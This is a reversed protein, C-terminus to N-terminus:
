GGLDLGLDVVGASHTLAGVSIFDPAAAAYAAVTALTIGGTVEIEVRGACRGVACAVDEPSFNDVMARDAATRLIEDLQELTDCEVHVPRGPWTRRAADVAAAISMGTLHNDKVMVADSLNARHNAGGGARVAAKELARLGPTTKRTDLIRTRGGSAQDAIDVFRRTLSAVGSLHRLFNLATREGTLIPALPGAVVAVVDREAFSAGEAVLWDVEVEGDLQAYTEVVCARGAVVGPERAVIAGRGAADAPILAATLDGLPLLDEALARGVADVVSAHPPDLYSTVPDRPPVLLRRRHRPLRAPHSQRPEGRRTRAAAILAGAVVTLNALAAWDRGVHAPPLQARVRDVHQAAAVLSASSRLVGAGATMAQQLAARLKAPDGPAEPAPPDPPAICRGPVATGAGGDLVARMAGTPRPGDRGAVIADVVRAGWVMGELLSNSALRNAGHVGTCAVEGAAWLGSVATAGDLDTVVGGSLYHAAPAIPLWDVAPDLGVAALSAAISPFREEFRELGTADLWCHDVGQELARATIARAVQDRPLLEDVFRQGHIDRVVAGHGRLAESLLPRPMAPHHLATPHFQMFEVDAAPVGAALAVALGDGTSEPPNTTVAYLQGAGGTALLVHTARIELAGQVRVGRCRGSEIVLAELFCSERLVAATSRAPKSSPASSRPAPRRGAPM